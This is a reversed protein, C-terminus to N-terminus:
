VTQARRLPAPTSGVSGHTVRGCRNQLGAPGGPGHRERGHRDYSRAELSTRRRHPPHHRRRRLAGAPAAGAQPLHRPPRPLPRAHDQRSARVRRGPSAEGRRLGANRRRSRRRRPGAPGAEELFRALEQDEVAIPTFGAEALQAELAEAEAAREGLGASRNGPLYAKGERRDLELLPLIADGWPAGDLLDATPSAPTSRRRKRASRSGPGRRASRRSWGSTRSTGTAPTNSPPSARTSSRPRFCHM